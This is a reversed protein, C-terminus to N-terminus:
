VPAGRRDGAPAWDITNGAQELARKLGAGLMADDEVLLLRM